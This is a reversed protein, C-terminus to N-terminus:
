LMLMSAEIQASLAELAAPDQSAIAEDLQAKLGQLLTIASANVTQVQAVDATLKAIADQLAMILTGLNTLTQGINLLDNKLVDSTINFNIDIVLSM